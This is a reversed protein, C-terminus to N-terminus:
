DTDPQPATQEAFARNARVILYKRDPSRRPRRVPSVSSGTFAATIALLIVPAGLGIVLALVVTIDRLGAQAAAFVGIVTCMTAFVLFLFIFERARIRLRCRRCIPWTGHVVSDAESSERAIDIGDPALALSKELRTWVTIQHSDEFQISTEYEAVSPRGHRICIPPLTDVLAYHPLGRQDVPNNAEPMYAIRLRVEPRRRSAM